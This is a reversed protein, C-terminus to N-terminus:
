TLPELGRDSLPVEVGRLGSAVVLDARGCSNDGKCGDRNSPSVSFFVGGLFFGAAFVDFGSFSLAFFGTFIGANSEGVNGGTM